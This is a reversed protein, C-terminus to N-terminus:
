PKEETALEDRLWQPAFQETWKCAECQDCQGRPCEGCLDYDARARDHTFAPVQETM